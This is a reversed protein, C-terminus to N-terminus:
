RLLVVVSITIPPASQLTLSFRYLSVYCRLAYGDHMRDRPQVPQVARSTLSATFGFKEPLSGM